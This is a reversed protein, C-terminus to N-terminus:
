SAQKRLSAPLPWPDPENQLEEWNDLVEPPIEDDPENDTSPVCGKGKCLSCKSGDFMGEGSGMCNPCLDDDTQKTNM